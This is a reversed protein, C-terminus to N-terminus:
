PTREIIVSVFHGPRLQDHPVAKQPVVVDKGRMSITVTDKSITTIYGEVTFKSSLGASAVWQFVLIALFLLIKV